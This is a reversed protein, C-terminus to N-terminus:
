RADIRVELVARDSAESVTLLFGQHSVSEGPRPIRGLQSLIFGALTEFDGDPLDLGCAQELHERESRGSAFWQREGNKRILDLADDSEDQIEGVIEELLDEITVLGATAGYEDVVIASQAQKLQLERLLEAVRKGEPVVQVPRLLQPVIPM